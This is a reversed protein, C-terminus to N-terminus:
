VDHRTCMSGCLGRRVDYANTPIECDLYADVARLHRRDRRTEGVQLRTFWPLLSHM